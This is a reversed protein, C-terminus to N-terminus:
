EEEHYFLYDYNGEGVYHNVLYRTIDLPDLPETLSGYKQPIRVASITSFNMELMQEDTFGQAELENREFYHVGHDGQIIIVADPNKEIIRNVMGLMMRTSYKHQSLYLAMDHDYHTEQPIGEEDFRFPFHPLFNQFYVLKPSSRELTEEFISSIYWDYHDVYYISIKSNPSVYRFIEEPYETELDALDYHQKITQALYFKISYFLSYKAILDVMNGKSSLSFDNVPNYTRSINEFSRGIDNLIHYVNYGAQYFSSFLEIEPYTDYIMSTNSIHARREYDTMGQMNDMQPKLYHDYIVPSTLGPIAYATWGIDLSAEENILFEKEMLSKKLDRQMDGFISEVTRFGMMGDMHFWYIDPHESGVEINFESKGQYKEDIYDAEGAYGIVACGFNYLYLICVMGAFLYGTAKDLHCKSSIYVAIGMLVIIYIWFLVKSPYYDIVLPYMWFVVWILLLPLLSLMRDGKAALFLYITISVFGIAVSLIISDMLSFNSINLSIYHFLVISPMLGSAVIFLANGAVSGEQQKWKCWLFGACIFLAVMAIVTALTIGVSLLLLEALFWWLTAAYIIVAITIIVIRIIQYTKKSNM